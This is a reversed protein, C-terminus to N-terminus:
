FPGKFIPNPVDAKIDPKKENLCDIMKQTKEKNFDMIKGVEFIIEEGTPYYDAALARSSPTPRDPLGIRIVPKLLENFMEESIRASIEAGIGYQKFGTDVCILRKTKSVSKVIEELKLPKLVRLDIIEILIGFDRAIESAIIAEYLMYSSAVITIDKGKKIVKPGDLPIKKVEMEVDGTVFHCWRHEIFITPTSETLASIMMGKTDNPFAPMVVRLGPIYAFLTELSQSHAPGQGWGRGVIARIVVPVKHKGSSVYHMKAANNIIQEMSLLAFEIRQHILLPRMGSLASGICFGMLGNEAIPSEIVREIGFRKILGSTTGFICKPDTVGEGIVFIDQDNEMAQSTALAIAESMTMEKIPM